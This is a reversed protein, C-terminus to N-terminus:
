EIQCSDKGIISYGTLVWKGNAGRVYTRETQLGDGCTEIKVTSGVPLHGFGHGLDDECGIDTCTNMPSMGPSKEREGPPSGCSRTDVTVRMFELDGVLIARADEPALDLVASSSAGFTGEIVAIFPASRLQDGSYVSSLSMSACGPAQGARKAQATAPFFCTAAFLLLVALKEM